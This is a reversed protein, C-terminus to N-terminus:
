FSFSYVNSEMRDLGLIRKNRVDVVIDAVSHDLGYMKHPKGNWDISIITRHHIGEEEKGNYKVRGDGYLIFIEDEVSAIAQYAMKTKEYLRKMVLAGGRDAMEFEPLFGDPGHIRHILNFEHDYIDILDLYEYAFICRGLSSNCILQGSYVEVAVTAPIDRQYTPYEGPTGIRNGEADFVYFRSPPTINQTTTVFTDGNMPTAEIIPGGFHIQSINQAFISDKEIILKFKKMQATVVDHAWFTSDDSFEIRAVSLMEEPGAGFPVISGIKFCDSKCNFVDVNMAQGAKSIFLLSDHFFIEVPSLVLGLAEKRGKLDVKEVFDKRNLIEKVGNIESTQPSKCYTFLILFILPTISIPKLM